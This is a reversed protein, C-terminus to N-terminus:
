QTVKSKTFIGYLKIKLQYQVADNINAICGDYNGNERTIQRTTKFNNLIGANPM